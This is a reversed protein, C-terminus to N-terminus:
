RTKASLAPLPNERLSPFCAVILGDFSYSEAPLLSVPTAYDHTRLFAVCAAHVEDGHTSIFIYDVLKQSLTQTAGQLMELEMGQIDAHLITLHKIHQSALFDDICVHPPSGNASHREVFAHIFYGELNNATFNKRGSELNSPEPEILWVRAQPVDRVFWMSYFGWYAGCEIMQAGPPLHRLVEQFVKEEQPEHSGRNKRLLETMGRGYYGDAGVRIGNFMIQFGDQVEGAHPVRSLQRNDPCAMVDLIRLRWQQAEARALASATRRRVISEVLAPSFLNIFWRIAANILKM